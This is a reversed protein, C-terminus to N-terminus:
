KSGFRMTKREEFPESAPKQRWKGSYTSFAHFPSEEPTKSVSQTESDPKIFLHTPLNKAGTKKRTPTNISPVHRTLHEVRSIDNVDVLPDTIVMQSGHPTHRLMFNGTHMDYGTRGTPNKKTSSAKTDSVIKAAKQFHTSVQSPYPISWHDKEVVSQARGALEQKNDYHNGSIVNKEGFAHRSASEIQQHHADKLPTLKEMQAIHVIGDKLRISHLSHVRPLHPNEDSHVAAKKIFRVYPDDIPNKHGSVSVKVIHHPDKESGTSDVKSYAAGFAGEGLKAYNGNKMAGHLKTMYDNVTTDTRHHIKHEMKYLGRKTQNGKEILFQQFTKM